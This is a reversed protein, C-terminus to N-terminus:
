AGRNAHWRRWAARAMHNPHSALCEPTAAGWAMCMTHLQLIQAISPCKGDVPLWHHEHQHNAWRVANRLREIPYDADSM